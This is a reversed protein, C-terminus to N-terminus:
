SSSRMPSEVKSPTGNGRPHWSFSRDEMPLGPHTPHEDTGDPNSTYLEHNGSKSSSYIIRTGDPSWKAAFGDEIVVKQDSGDANILMIKNTFQRESTFRVRTFLIRTGDPSWVPETDKAGPKTTLRVPNSGDANFIHISWTTFTSDMYVVAVIKQGDPSWDMHNIDFRSDVLKRDEIGDLNVINLQMLGSAQAFCYALVGGGSGSLTPAPTVTQTPPLRTFTPNPTNTPSLPTVIPTADGCGSVLLTAVMLFALIKQM